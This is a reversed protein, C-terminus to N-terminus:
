HFSDVDHLDGTARLLEAHAVVIEYRAALLDFRASILATQARLHDTITSLGQEYRDRVIRAASEAQAVAASAVSATERAVRLRHWAALSEMAVADRAETEGAAAVESEARAAAVRAPRARDFVDLSVVLGAMHDSNRDALTGGSAGYTGFADVRPLSSRHETTLRLRADSAASAALKVPARNAIARAIVDELPPPEVDLAPLTEDIAIRELLPRQLLTALAAQAIALEGEASLARKRLDALHVDASLADSEVLLGEDFRQRTAAADAEATRAADNALRLREEAVAVGFFRAVAMARMQQRTEELQVETRGTEGRSLRVASETRFGDFVTLRATLAVRYNTLADPANLFHPDFHREAFAGQELLSGFVFVPNNSRTASDSLEVRPFRAARAEAERARAARARAEGALLAPNHALAENAAETLSLSQAGLTGGALALLLAAAAKALRLGANQNWM